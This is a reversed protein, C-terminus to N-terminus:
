AVRLSSSSFAALKEQVVLLDEMGTLDPVPEAVPLTFVSHPKTQALLRIATPLEKENREPSFPAAKLFPWIDPAFLAYVNMSVGFGERRYQKAAEDDPKEILDTVFGEKDTKVIALNQYREEPLALADFAYSPLLNPYSSTALLNLVRRSYLNDANCVLFRETQWDPTQELAQLVADATGWPKARNPPTHQRAFRFAMNPFTGNAELTQVHPQTVEDKPNLIILVENIGAFFAEELIYELFPRGNQGVGIMSKPRMLAQDRLTPPIKGVEPIKKMRSALGAAMIM